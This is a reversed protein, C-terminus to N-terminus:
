RTKLFRQLDDVLDKEEKEDMGEKELDERISSSYKIWERKDKMILEQVLPISEFDPFEEYKKQFNKVIAHAEEINELEILKDYNELIKTATNKIESRQYKKQLKDAITNIFKEQEKVYSQLDVQVALKIIKEAYDIAESYNGSLYSNQALSKLEEIKSNIEFRRDIESIDAKKKETKKEKKDKKKM